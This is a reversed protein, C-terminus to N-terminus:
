CIRPLERGYPMQVIRRSKIKTILEVIPEDSKVVQGIIAANKGNKSQRCVSLCKEAKDSSVIIVVKGENAIDLIDFGLMEAAAKTSPNVPIYEEDIEIASSTQRVIENLAAALGGRTPDRMFKIDEGCVEIVNACIHAVSGCDSQIDTDFKMGERQSMITMGHDGITGSIIIKDGPQIREFGINAKPLKLGIGSTNIFLKDAAGAEVVKTDGCVVEVNEEKATKAASNLLQRLIEIELGEEIILSMSLAIPKAGSVALDNITGCIALKGIDGGNFFLPKVVFGDTTFSISNQGIQIEAADTLKNLTFNGFASLIVNRILEDTMRGGGGHALLVIEGSM